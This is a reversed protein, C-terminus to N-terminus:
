HDLRERPGKDAQKVPHVLLELHEEQVQHGPLEPLEPLEKRVLTEGKDLNVKPDL